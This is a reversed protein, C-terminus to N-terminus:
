KARNSEWEARREYFDTWRSFLDRFEDDQCDFARCGQYRTPDDYLLCYSICDEM